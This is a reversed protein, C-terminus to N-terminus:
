GLDIEGRDTPEVNPLLKGPFPADIIPVKPFGVVKGFIM